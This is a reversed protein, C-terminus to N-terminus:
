LRHSLDWATKMAAKTVRNYWIRISKYVGERGAPPGAAAPVGEGGAAWRGCACGGRRRGLPRVCVRGAPPGAAARLGEGGAAWRGCM